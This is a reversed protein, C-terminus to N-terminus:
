TRCDALNKSVGFLIAGRRSLVFEASTLPSEFVGSSKNPFVFSSTYTLSEDLLMDPLSVAM